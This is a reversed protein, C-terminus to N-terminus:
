SGGSMMQKLTNDGRRGWPLHELDLKEAIRFMLLPLKSM